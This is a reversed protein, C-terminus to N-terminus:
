KRHQGRAHGRTHGRNSYKPNNFTTQYHGTTKGVTEGAECVVLQGERHMPLFHTSCFELSDIEIVKM